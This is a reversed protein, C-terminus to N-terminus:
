LCANIIGLLLFLAIYKKLETKTFSFLKAAIESLLSFCLFVMFVCVYSLYVYISPYFFVDALDASLYPHSFTNRLFFNICYGGAYLLITYFAFLWLNDKKADLNNALSRYV